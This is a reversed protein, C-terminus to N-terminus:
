HERDQRAQFPEGGDLSHDHLLAPTAPWHRRLNFPKEEALSWEYIRVGDRDSQLQETWFGERDNAYEPDFCDLARHVDLKALATQYEGLLAITEKGTDAFREAERDIRDMEVKAWVGAVLAVVLFFGMIRVPIRVWRRKRGAALKASGTTPTIVSM